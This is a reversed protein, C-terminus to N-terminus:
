VPLPCPQPSTADHSQSSALLKSFFDIREELSKGPLHCVFDGPHWSWSEKGTGGYLQEPYANLERQKVIKCRLSSKNLAKRLCDLLWPTASTGFKPDHAPMSALFNSLIPEGSLVLDMAHQENPIKGELAAVKNLFDISEECNRLLFSDSQMGNRDISFIFDSKNDVFSELKVTSNTLMVDCGTFFLWDCCPLMAKWMSVREWAIRKPNSHAFSFFDYAESLAYAEKFPRTIKALAEYEFSCATLVCFNM